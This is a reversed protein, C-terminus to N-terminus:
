MGEPAPGGIPVAERMIREIEQLTEQTLHIDGALATQALQDPNRAGVIAVDIAPQALVWAIALQAITMGEGQM